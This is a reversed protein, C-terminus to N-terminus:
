WWARLPKYMEDGIVHKILKYCELRIFYRYSVKRKLRRHMVTQGIKEDWAQLFKRRGQENLLVMEDITEFHKLNIMKKNILSFILTDVILPKFIEAIDLSLSFRKSSPEHLYSVTPNLQTKYIESLVTTYCLSNGFSILANIEDHPPQKSRKNFAFESPLIYKFLSYYHQRIMGETGMLQSISNAEFIQPILLMIPDLAEKTIQKYGKLTRVMHFTAASVFSKALMLRKDKDLYHASQQVLTFGSLNSERSMFSGSYFGYYNFFHVQIQHQSLFTLLTTNLDVQGFVYLNNIQEVPLSKKKEEENVFYFTNDKRKMRGNSFIYFDRLM